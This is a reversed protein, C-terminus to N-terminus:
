LKQDTQDLVIANIMALDDDPLSDPFKEGGVLMRHVYAKAVPSSSTDILENIAELM